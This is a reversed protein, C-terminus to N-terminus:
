LDEKLFTNLIINASVLSQKRMIKIGSVQFYHSGKELSYIFRRLGEYSGDVTINLIVKQLKLEKKEEFSYNINMIDVRNASTQEFLYSILKPFDKTTRLKKEFEGVEEKKKYIEQYGSLGENAIATRLTSYESVARNLHNEKSPIILTWLLINLILLVIVFLGKTRM